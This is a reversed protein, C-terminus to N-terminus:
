QPIIGVAREASKVFGMKQVIASVQKGDALCNMAAVTFYSTVMTVDQAGDVKRRNLVVPKILKKTQLLLVHATSPFMIRAVSQAFFLM